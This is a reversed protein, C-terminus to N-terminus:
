AGREKSSENADRQADEQASKLVSKSTLLVQQLDDLLFQLGKGQDDKTVLEFRHEGMPRIRYYLGLEGLHMICRVLDSCVMAVQATEEGIMPVLNIPVSVADSMNLLGLPDTMGLENAITKVRKM